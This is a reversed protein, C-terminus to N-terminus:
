DMYNVPNGTIKRQNRNPLGDTTDATGLVVSACVTEDEGLGLKTLYERVTPEETLWHLSNIYCSGLDLENAELMMNMAACVSDAMANGYGIKNALVILVPADYHFAFFGKKCAKVISLMSKYMNDTIEMRAFANCALEAIERLAEGNQILIFRTSQSNGGCPALRGAEVIKELADRAVPEKKFKRTSRRTKIAEYVDM